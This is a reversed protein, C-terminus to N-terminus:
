ANESDTVLAPSVAVRTASTATRSTVTANKMRERAPRRDRSCPDRHGDHDPAREAHRLRLDPGPRGESHEAPVARARVRRAAAPRAAEVVRPEDLDDPLYAVLHLGAAIGAPELEPARRRLARSCRTAAGAISRGCVACTATSSAARSSTPSPWSTSCPRAATPWCDQGRRDRRRAAAARRALRAAAGAGADQQRHGRLARSRARPGARRRDARPRLPVGRRLRGRRCRTAGSRGACSRPAASPRSSRAPRGSTRRRSSWPTPTSATSRTSASATRTSRCASSRSAPPAHSPCRTTTPARTRSPSGSRARPRVLVDSSSRSARARLRQLHRDDDPKASTGRVRNLYETLAHHLVPAGRAASTASTRTPPRPSCGASRACGRRARSGRGTPGARASTSARRRQRSGATPAARRGRSRHGGAHVRGVPQDPLGRRRAAPLGRRRRRSLGRAREGPRAHAAALHRARPARLPDRRPDVGRDAPAARRRSGRSRWTSWCSARNTRELLVPDSRIRPGIRSLRLAMRLIM